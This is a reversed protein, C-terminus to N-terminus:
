SVETLAVVRSDGYVSIFAVAETSRRGTSNMQEFHAELNQRKTKGEFRARLAM